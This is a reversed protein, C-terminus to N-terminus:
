GTPRNLHDLQDQKLLGELYSCNEKIGNMYLNEGGFYDAAYRYVSGFLSDLRNNITARIFGPTGNLLAVPSEFPQDSDCNHAAVKGIKFELYLHDRCRELYARDSMQAILDATGLLCGLTHDVSDEMTVQKEYGTFHLLKGMKIVWAQKGLTPLYTALFRTGRAIHTKTYEAGHKHKSDNYHRIYGIDHFLAGTIGQLFRELGLAQETGGHVKEYGAYLRAAALTVDLIHRLDHYDTDCAYYGPLRGHYIRDIDEFMTEIVAFENEQDPFCCRFIERVAVCVSAPETICVSLSIDLKEWSLHKVSENVQIHESM